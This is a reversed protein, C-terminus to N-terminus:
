REGDSAHRDLYSQLILAAALDDTPARRRRGKGPANRQLREAQASSLREDWLEVPLGSLDALTRAFAEVRRAQAGTKGSMSLPHGVVVAEAGEGRALSTIARADALDDRAEVIRLPVALRGGPASIAVGIRREGVDLGLMRVVGDIGGPTVVLRYTPNTYALLPHRTSRQRM